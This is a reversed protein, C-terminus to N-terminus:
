SRSQAHARWAAAAGGAAWQWAMDIDGSDDKRDGVHRIGPM